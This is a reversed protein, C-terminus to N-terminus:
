KDRKKKQGALGNAEGRQAYTQYLPGGINCCSTKGRSFAAAKKKM